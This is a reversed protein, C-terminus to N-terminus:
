SQGIARRPAGREVTTPLEVIFTSGEGETSELRISGGLRHTLEKTIALGLGTGEHERTRSADLQRFKEFITVQQDEAIGPGTDRVALRVRSDSAHQIVLSVSGGTSTFKIANSLLNYLIQKIKGSDSRCVPLAEDLELSLRQNRKDALPRVFDILDTGLDSISFESVHLEFGGAEIKALDLLDNIIELLNRGSTLINETYRALRVRDAKPSDWADRLLEAFGIISILPTRLEHTVNTLFEGKIRNSEYLAVNTEALEGLRVDLSRNVRQQEEQANKLHTLMDNLAESLEEFEDGSSIVSRVSIDGTTVKEAARRLLHVPSLVLRQTVIYFVLIALVAGSAGALMTVVSNWARADKIMLMPLRVDIIGRLVHPHPDTQGGRVARAFRFIRGDDQTRWHYSQQPQQRLRQIAETQFGLGALPGDPVLQPPQPPLGMEEALLPWVRELQGQAVQWDVERLEVAQYAATAVREAHLLLAQENLATMQLWPFFLTVVITLLVAAGFLLSIKRALPVRHLGRRRMRATYQMERGVNFRCLDVPDIPGYRTSGALIPSSIRLM